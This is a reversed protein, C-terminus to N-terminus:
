KAGLKARPIWRTVWAVAVVIRGVASQVRAARADDDPDSTRAAHEVYRAAAAELGELLPSLVFLAVSVAALYPEAATVISDIDM